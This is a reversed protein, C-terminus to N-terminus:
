YANGPFKARILEWNLPAIDSVSIQKPCEAERAYTHTCHGFGEADLQAVVKLVREARGVQGQPLIAPQSVKAGVLFVSLM